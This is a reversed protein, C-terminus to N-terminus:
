GGLVFTRDLQVVGQGLHCVICGHGDPANVVPSDSILALPRDLGGGQELVFVIFALFARELQPDLADGGVPEHREERLLGRQQLLIEETVRVFTSRWLTAPAFRSFSQIGRHEFVGSFLSGDAPPHLTVKGLQIALGLVQGGLFLRWDLLVLAGVATAILLPIGVFHTAKNAPHRHEALYFAFEREWFSDLTAAGAAHRVPRDASERPDMGRM